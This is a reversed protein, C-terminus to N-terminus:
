KWYFVRKESPPNLEIVREGGKGDTALQVIQVSWTYQRGQQQDALGWLWLPVRSSTITTDQHNSMPTGSETWLITVRYVAGAPLYDKNQWQLMIETKDGEYSSGNGPNLMILTALLPAPTNTPASTPTVTPLPRPTATPSQTAATAVITPSAAPATAVTPTLSIDRTAATMAATATARTPAPTPTPVRLKDGPQLMSFATLGNIAAITEWPIDLKQGILALSDGAQVVYEGAAPSATVTPTPSPTASPPRTATATSIRTPSPTPTAPIHDAVVAATPTALEPFQVLNSLRAQAAVAQEKAKEVPLRYWGRNVVVALILALPIWLAWRPGAPVLSRGCYPCVTLDVSAHNRCHACRITRTQRTQRAGCEPCVAIGQQLRAGCRNCYM